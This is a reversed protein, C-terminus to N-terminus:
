IVWIPLTLCKVQAGDKHVLKKAGEKPVNGGGMGRRVKLRPSEKTSFIALVGGEPIIMKNALSHWDKYNASNGRALEVEPHARHLCQM